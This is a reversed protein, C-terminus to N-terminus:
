SRGIQLVHEAALGRSIVQTRVAYSGDSGSDDAGAFKERVRDFADYDVRHRDCVYAAHGSDTLIGVVIKGHYKEDAAFNRAVERVYAGFANQRRQWALSKANWAVMAERFADRGAETSIDFDFANKISM